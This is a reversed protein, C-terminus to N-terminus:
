DFNPDAPPEVANAQEVPQVQRARLEALMGALIGTQQTVVDQLDPPDRERPERLARPLEDDILDDMIHVDTPTRHVPQATRGSSDTSSSDLTASTGARTLVMSSHFLQKRLAASKKTSASSAGSFDKQRQDRALDSTFPGPTGPEVFTRKASPPRGKPHRVFFGFLVCALASVSLCESPLLVTRFSVM